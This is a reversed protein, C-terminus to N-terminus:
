LNSAHTHLMKNPSCPLIKWLRFDVNNKLVRLNSHYSYWYARLTITHCRSFVLLHHLLENTSSSQQSFPSFSLDQMGLNPDEKPRLLPLLDASLAYLIASIHHSGCKVFLSSIEPRVTLKAHCQNEPVTGFSTLCSISIKKLPTKGAFKRTLVIKM